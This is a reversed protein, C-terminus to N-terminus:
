SCRAQPRRPASRASRSPMLRDLELEGSGAGRDATRSGRWRRSSALSALPRRPRAEGEPQAQSQRWGAPAPNTRAPRARRMGTAGADLPGERDVATPQMGAQGAGDAYSRPQASHRSAGELSTVAPAVDPGRVVPGCRVVVTVVLGGDTWSVPWVRAPTAPRRLGGRTESVSCSPPEGGGAGAM